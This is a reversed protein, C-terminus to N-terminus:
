PSFIKKETDPEVSSVSFTLILNLAAQSELSKAV